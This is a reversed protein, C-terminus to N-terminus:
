WAFYENRLPAHLADCMLEMADGIQHQFCYIAAGLTMTMMVCLIMTNLGFGLSMINLQPVARGMLGMVLTALLLAVTAPGAARVGLQFSMSLISLFAKGITTPIAVAGPPITVFTDLLGAMLVRHGGIILYVSLTLMYLFRSFIPINMGTSPDFIDAVMLGGIRGVLGGALYAGSFFIRLGVGLSMGIILEAGIYIAYMVLNPPETVDLCWQSPMILLALSFALLARVRVPMSGEGFVPATVVLGSVRTLVLSFVLVRSTDLLQLWDM